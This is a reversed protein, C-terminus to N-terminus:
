RQELKAMEADFTKQFMFKDFELAMKADKSIGNAIGDIVQDKPMEVAIYYTYKGEKSKFLKEDKTVVGQLQQNVVNRANEEFKSQFEQKDNITYQNMYQETVSKITSSVIGAIETRANLIAIKKAATMDPSTGIGVARFFNADSRYEKTSFPTSIEKDGENASVPKNGCSSFMFVLALSAVIGIFHKIKM